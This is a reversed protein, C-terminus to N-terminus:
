RIQKMLPRQAPPISAELINNTFFWPYHGMFTALMAAPAGNFLTSLGEEAVRKKLVPLGESGHVQLTTKLTDVPMVVIRWSAAAASAAMTQVFMPLETGELMAKMGENAATDGFRSLPGQLLAAWLGSYFRPIGGEEYIKKFAEKSSLGTRMQYNMTTRLWMLALVNLVM